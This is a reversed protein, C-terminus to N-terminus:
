MQAHVHKYLYTQEFENLRNENQYMSGFMAVLRKMDELEIDEFLIESDLMVLAEDHSINHVGQLVM